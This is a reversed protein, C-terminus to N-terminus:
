IKSHTKGMLPTTSLRKPPKKNGPKFIATKQSSSLRTNRWKSMRLGTSTFLCTASKFKIQTQYTWSIRLENKSLKSCRHCFSFLPPSGPLVQKTRIQHDSCRWIDKYLTFLSPTSTKTRNWSEGSTQFITLILSRPSHCWCTKWPSSGATKPKSLEPNPTMKLPAESSSRPIHKKAPIIFCSLWTRM